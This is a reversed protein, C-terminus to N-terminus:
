FVDHVGHATYLPIEILLHLGEDSRYADRVFELTYYAAIFKRPIAENLGYVEFTDLIKSLNTPPILAIPLFGHVLSALADQMLSAM